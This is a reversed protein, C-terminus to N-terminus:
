VNLSCENRNIVVCPTKPSCSKGKVSVCGENEDTDSRKGDM